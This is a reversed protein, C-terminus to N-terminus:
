TGVVVVNPLFELFIYRASPPVLYYRSTNTFL